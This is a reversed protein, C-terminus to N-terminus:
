LHLLALATAGTATAALFALALPRWGAERLHTFTIGLGVAALGCLLLLESARQAVDLLQEWSPECDAGAALYDGLARLGALAMFAMVFWPLARRRLQRPEEEVAGGQGRAMWMAAAPVMVLLGFIRLFKTFGAVAVADPSDYQTSYIASAGVVQSTDQIAAGFFMGAHLADTGFVAAAIWPYAVMAASGFLVICTIAIGIEAKQARLLPALAVIATCGCIATGAAILRRIGPAIGLVRGLGVATILAMAICAIVLPLATMGTEFLVAWTLRLGVLAVGMQLITTAAFELGAEAWAGFGVANRWLIGLVVACFV